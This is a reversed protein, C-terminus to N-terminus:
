TLNCTKSSNRKTPKAVSTQKRGDIFDDKSALSCPWKAGKGSLANVNLNKILIFEVTTSCMKSCM